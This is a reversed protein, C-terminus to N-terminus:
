TWGDRPLATNKKPGLADDFKKAIRYWAKTPDGRGGAARRVEAILEEVGGLQVEVDALHHKIAQLRRGRLPSENRTEMAEVLALCTALRERVTNM